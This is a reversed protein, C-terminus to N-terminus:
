RKARGHQTAGLIAVGQVGRVRSAARRGKEGRGAPAAQAGHCGRGPWPFAVPGGEDGRSHPGTRAAAHSRLQQEKAAGPPHDLQDAGAALSIPHLRARAGDVGGGAGRRFLGDIQPQRGSPTWGWPRTLPVLHSSDVIYQEDAPITKEFVAGYLVGAAQRQRQGGADLRGRRGQLGQCQAQHFAGRGGRLGTAASQVMLPARGTRHPHHRRAPRPGADSAGQPGAQWFNQFFSEGGLVARGLSKFLGGEAKTEVGGGASHSVMAGSDARIRENPALTVTALSYSPRFQIEIEM